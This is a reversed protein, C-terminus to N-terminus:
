EIAPEIKMQAIFSELTQDVTLYLWYFINKLICSLYMCIYPLGFSEYIQLPKFELLTPVQTPSSSCGGFCLPDLKLVCLWRENDILRRRGSRLDNRHSKYIVQVNIRKNKSSSGLRPKRMTLMIKLKPCCLLLNGNRSWKTSSANDNSKRVSCSCLTMITSLTVNQSGQM